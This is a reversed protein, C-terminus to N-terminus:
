VMETEQTDSLSLSVSLCVSLCVSFCLCFCISLSLSVCVSVNLSFLLSVSLVAFHYLNMLGTQNTNTNVTESAWHSYVGYFRDSHRYTTRRGRQALLVEWMYVIDPVETALAANLYSRESDTVLSNWGM